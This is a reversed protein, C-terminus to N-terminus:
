ILTLPTDSRSTNLFSVCQHLSVAWEDRRSLSRPLEFIRMLTKSISSHEINAGSSPASESSPSSSYPASRFISSKPIWPSILIAPVRVGLRTFKFGDSSPPDPSASEQDPAPVDGPPVVHDYFGGHEDYTVILLTENWLPSSRVAKYVSHLFSEGSYLNHPPHNDNKEFDPDIYTYDPLDGSSADKLFKKYPHVNKWNFLNRFFSYLVISPKGDTYVRWSKKNDKMNEFTTKCDLGNFVNIGPGYILNLKNSIKGKSTACHLFHRNPFTPGPVSAHWDDVIGFERGLGYTVPLSDPGHLGFVGDLSKELTLKNKTTVQTQYIRNVNNAFGSMTPQLNSTIPTDFTNFIQETVKEMEHGPNFHDVPSNAARNRVAVFTGNALYNGANPPPGNVLPNEKQLRGLFTDFSRNELMLVVVKKIRDKHLKEAPADNLYYVPQFYSAPDKPYVYSAKTEEVHKVTPASYSVEPMNTAALCVSILISFIHM